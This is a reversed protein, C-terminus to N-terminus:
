GPTFEMLVCLKHGAGLAGLCPSTCPWPLGRGWAPEWPASAPPAAGAWDWCGAWLSEASVPSAPLLLRRGEASPQSLLPTVCGGVFPSCLASGGEREGQGQQLPESGLVPLCARPQAPSLARPVAGLECSSLAPASWPGLRCCSSLVYVSSGSWVAAAPVGCAKTRRQIWLFDIAMGFPINEKVLFSLKLSISPSM